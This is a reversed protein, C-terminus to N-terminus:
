PGDASSALYNEGQVAIPRTEARGQVTMLGDIRAQSLGEDCTFIGRWHTSRLGPVPVSNGACNAPFQSGTGPNAGRAGRWVTGGGNEDGRILHKRMVRSVGLMESAMQRFSATQGLTQGVPYTNQAHQRGLATACGAPVARRM